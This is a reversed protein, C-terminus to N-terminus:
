NGAARLLQASYPNLEIPLHQGVVVTGGLHVLHRGFAYNPEFAFSMGPALELDPLFTPHDPVRPYGDTGPIRSFFGLGKGVSLGPNLSHVAILFPWGDAAEIPEHMVDVLEGFTRGPRLARLGADYAARAVEAARHFDEHVDGVTITVQNQTHRGGFASFVEAYIIDGDDLIRPAQPRHGWAPPGAAVVDPGSWLHMAPPLSGHGYGEAMGAAYVRSESVGPAATAVMAAVMADGIGASHRLVAIEEEGLQMVLRGFPLDVARFDAEPFRALVNSWLGYPIIGEPHWPMHPGLGIVGIVATALGLEGLAEAITGSHRTGRLDRPPIWMTEGRRASELNDMIFMPGPLLAIPEGTRPFVVTAGPRSNTFWTDYAVPAPGADEHEGFVLLADLGEDAMFNRALSWRRDREATSFVPVQAELM